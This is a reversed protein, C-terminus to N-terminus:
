SSQLLYADFYAHLQRADVVRMKPHFVIRGNEKFTRVANTMRQLHVNEYVVRPNETLNEIVLHVNAEATSHEGRVTQLSSSDPSIHLTSMETCMKAATDM